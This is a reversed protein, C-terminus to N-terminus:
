NREDANLTGRQGTAYAFQSPLLQAAETITTLMDASPQEGPRVLIVLAERFAKQSNKASPQREEGAIRIVDDITVREAKARVVIENDAVSSGDPLAGFYDERDTLLLFSERIERRDALGMLYLDFPHYVPAEDFYDLRYSYIGGGRDQWPLVARVAGFGIGPPMQLNESWHNDDQNAIPLTRDRCSPNIGDPLPDENPANGLGVGWQHGIEHLLTDGVTSPNKVQETWDNNHYTFLHIAKLRDSDIEAWDIGSKVAQCIGRVDSRIDYTNAVTDFEHRPEFAPFIALFDYDKPYRHFFETMVRELDLSSQFEDTPLDFDGELVYVHRGGTSTTPPAQSDSLHTSAYYYGGGALLVILLGILWPYKPKSHIFSDEM